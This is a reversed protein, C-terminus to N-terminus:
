TADESGAAAAADRNKRLGRRRLITRVLGLAIFAGVLILIVAVGIGEWDARVNVDVFRADGIPVSTASRLQLQITVDGNGVRSQVPVLVKTNSAAEAQDVPTARRVDLRLDDPISYLVVNVPYPLDNRVWFPLSSGSTALNINSPPLIGVSDLTEATATRHDALATQWAPLEPIWAAGMVQLLEARQPGTLLNPDDLITAFAAVDAEEAHLTSAADARAADPEATTIRASQPTAGVLESFMAARTGELMTAADIASRLALRSRAAARDVTVLLPVGQASALELMAVASALSRGRLAAVPTTSAEHLAASIGTDYTLTAADGVQTRAPFTATAPATTGSPILTLTPEEESGLGGLTAVTAADATGGVPWYVGEQATGIDLLAELDPLEPGEPDPTPEPTETPTPFDEDSM